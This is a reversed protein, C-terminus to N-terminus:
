GEGASSRASQDHSDERYHPYATITIAAILMLYLFAMGLSSMSLYTEFDLGLLKALAFVFIM